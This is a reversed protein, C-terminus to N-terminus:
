KGEFESKVAGLQYCGEREVGFCAHSRLLGEVQYGAKVFAQKSGINRQYCGADIKELGLERFGYDTILSIAETAFGQGWVSKDGILLGITARKHESVVPGLKINGIHRESDNLFVGCFLDQSSNRMAKVFDRISAASHTVFRSELYQNVEPDNMWQVYSPTVDVLDLEKLYIREGVIPASLHM